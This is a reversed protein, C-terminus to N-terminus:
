ESSILKEYADMAKKLEEYYKVIRDDYDKMSADNTSLVHLLESRRIVQFQRDITSISDISPLWNSELDTVVADIKGLMVLSTINGAIQIFIVIGFAAILKTSLRLQSTM